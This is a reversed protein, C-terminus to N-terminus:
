GESPPWRREYHARIRQEIAQKAEATTAAAEEDHLQALVETWRSEYLELRFMGELEATTEPSLVMRAPGLTNVQHATVPPWWRGAKLAAVQDPTLRSAAGASGKWWDLWARLEDAPTGAPPPEIGIAAATDAVLTALDPTPM